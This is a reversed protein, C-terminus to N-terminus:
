KLNYVHLENVYLFERIASYPIYLCFVTRVSRTDRTDLTTVNSPRNRQAIRERVVYKTYRRLTFVELVPISFVHDPALQGGKYKHM